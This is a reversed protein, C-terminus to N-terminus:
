KIKFFSASGVVYNLLEGVEQASVWKKHSCGAVAVLVLTSTGTMWRGSVYNLLEGAKQAGMRKEHSYVAQERKRARTLVCGCQIYAM